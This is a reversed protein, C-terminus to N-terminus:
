IVKFGYLRVWGPEPVSAVFGAVGVPGVLIPQLRPKVEREGLIRIWSIHAESNESHHVVVQDLRISTHKLLGGYKTYM